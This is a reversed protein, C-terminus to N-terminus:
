DKYAKNYYYGGYYGQEQSSMDNLVTGLIPAQVSELLERARVLLPLPTKGSRAVVIVGHVHQAILLADTVVTVPPSDIIVLDFKARLETM